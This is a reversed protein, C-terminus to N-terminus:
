ILLICTSVSAALDGRWVCVFFEEMYMKTFVYIHHRERLPTQWRPPLPPSVSLYPLYLLSSSYTPLCTLSPSVSVHPYSPSTHFSSLPPLSPPLNFPPNPLPSSSMSSLVFSSLLSFLLFFFVFFVFYVSFSSITLKFFIFCFSFSSFLVLIFFLPPLFLPTFLLCASFSGFRLFLLCFSGVPHLFFLCLLFCCSLWSAEM